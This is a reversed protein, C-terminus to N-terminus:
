TMFLFEILFSKENPQRMKPAMRHETMYLELRVYELMKQYKLEFIKSLMKSQKLRLLEKM